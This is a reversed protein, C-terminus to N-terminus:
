DLDGADDFLNSSKKTAAKSEPTINSVNGNADANPKTEMPPATTEVPAPQTHQVTAGTPLNAAADNLSDNADNVAGNLTDLGDGLDGVQETGVGEDSVPNGNEDVQPETNVYPQGGNILEGDWGTGKLDTPQEVAENDDIYMEGYSDQAQNLAAAEETNMSNKSYVGFDAYGAPLYVAMKSDIYTRLESNILENKNKINPDRQVLVEAGASVPYMVQPHTEQTLGPEIYATAYMRTGVSAGKYYDLESQISTYRVLEPYTFKLKVTNGLVMYVRKRVFAPLDTSDPYSVRIDIYDGAKLGIPVWQFYVDREYLPQTYDETMFLDKTLMTQPNVSVKYYVPPVKGTIKDAAFLQSLDTIADQPVASAMITMPTLDDETVRTAAVKLTKVTYVTTLPGIADISQQLQTNQTLLTDRDAIVKTKQIYTYAGFVVAGVLLLTELIVLIKKLM